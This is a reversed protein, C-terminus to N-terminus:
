LGFQERVEEFDKIHEMEDAPTGILKDMYIVSYWRGFKYGCYDMRGALTYGMREHFQMSNFDSYEDIPLTISAITKVIGQEKLISELLTYVQRGIGKRRIGKKLYITMEANWEYAARPHYRGAYSYGVIEDDCEIVLYPYHEMIHAMRGQFEEVSPVEYEFTLTSHEIYYGYIELLAPADELKATRIRINTNM